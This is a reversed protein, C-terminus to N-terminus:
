RRAAAARGVVRAASRVVARAPRLLRGERFRTAHEHVFQELDRPEEGTVERVTPLAASAAGLRVLPALDLLRSTAEPRVGMRTLTRSALESATDLYVVPEGTAAALTKAVSAWSMCRPGTVELVRMDAAARDIEATAVAAVDRADVLAVPADGMPLPIVGLRSIVPALGLLAQMPISPRLVTFPLPAEELRRDAQWHAQGAPSRAAPGVAHSMGSVRVVRRLGAAAAADVLRVENAIEAAEDGSALVLADAGQFASRLAGTEGRAVTGRDLELVEARAALGRRLEPAFESQALLAVRM